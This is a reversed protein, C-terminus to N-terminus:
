ITYYFLYSYISGLWSHFSSSFHLLGLFHNSIDVTFAIFATSLFSLSRSLFFCFYARNQLYKTSRRISIMICQPHLIPSLVVMLIHNWQVFLAKSFHIDFLVASLMLFCRHLPYLAPKMWISEFILSLSSSVPWSMTLWIPCICIKHSTKYLINKMQSPYQHFEIQILWIRKVLLFTM